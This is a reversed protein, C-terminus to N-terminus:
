PCGPPLTDLLVSVFVDVRQGRLGYEPIEEFYICLCPSGESFYIYEIMGTSKEYLRPVGPVDVHMGVEFVGVREALIPKDSGDLDPHNDFHPCEKCRCKFPHRPPNAQAPMAGRGHKQTARGHKQKSSFHSSFQMYFFCVGGGRLACSPSSPHFRVDIEM